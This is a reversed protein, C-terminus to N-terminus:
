DIKVNVSFLFSMGVVVANAKSTANSKDVIGVLWLLAIILILLIKLRAKMAYLQIKGLWKCCIDIFELAYLLSGGLLVFFFGAAVARTNNTAVDDSFTAFAFFYLLGSFLYITNVVIVSRFRISIALYNRWVDVGLATSLLCIFFGDSVHITQFSRIDVNNDTDKSECHILSLPPPPDM